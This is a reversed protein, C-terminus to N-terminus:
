WSKYYDDHEFIDDNKVAAKACSGRVSLKANEAPLYKACNMKAATTISIGTLISIDIFKLGKKRLERVKLYQDRTYFIRAM